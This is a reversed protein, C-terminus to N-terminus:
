GACCPMTMPFDVVGASTASSRIHLSRGCLVHEPKSSASLEVVKGDLDRGHTRIIRWRGPM